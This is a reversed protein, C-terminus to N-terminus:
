KYFNKYNISLYNCIYLIIITSIVPIQQIIILIILGVIGDPNDCFNKYKIRFFLYVLWNFIIEGAYCWLFIIM